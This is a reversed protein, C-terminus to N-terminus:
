RLDIRVPERKEDLAVYTFLGETVKVESGDKKRRAWTQVNATISTNGVHTVTVYFSVSDGVHVPQHFSMAELGVTAVDKGTYRRCANLCALDMQELIWGGFVDGLHNVNKPLPIARIELTTEAPRTEQGANHVQRFAKVAVGPPRETLIPTPKHDEGIAVFSFVGETVKVLDFTDKRKAYSEILLDVSTRGQSVLTSKITVQDGVFVPKKFSMGNIGVTVTRGKIHEYAARGAAKDMQALLWGASIYKEGLSITDAPEPLAIIQTVPQPAPAPDQREEKKKSEKKRAAM